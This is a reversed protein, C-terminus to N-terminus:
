SQVPHTPMWEVWKSVACLQMMMAKQYESIRGKLEEVESSAMVEKVASTFSKWWKPGSSQPSSALERAIGLLKDCDKQCQSALTSIATRNRSPPLAGGRGEAQASRDRSLESSLESLKSIINELSEANESSGTASRHIKRAGDILNWAFQVFQTITGALSLAALPDM